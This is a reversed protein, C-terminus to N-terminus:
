IDAGFADTVEAVQHVLCWILFDAYAVYDLVTSGADFSAFFSVCLDLLEGIKTGDPVKVLDGFLYSDGTLGEVIPFVFAPDDGVFVSLGIELACSFEPFFATPVNSVERLIEELICVFCRSILRAKSVYVM